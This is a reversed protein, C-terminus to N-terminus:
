ASALEDLHDPDSDADPDNNNLVQGILWVRRRSDGAYQDSFFFATVWSESMDMYFIALGQLANRVQEWSARPLHDAFQVRMAISLEPVGRLSWHLEEETVTSNAGYIM